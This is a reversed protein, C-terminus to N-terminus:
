GIHVGDKEATVTIPNVTEFTGGTYTHPLVVPTTVPAFPCGFGDKVLTYTIGGAGGVAAGVTADITIDGHEKAPEKPTMNTIGAHTLGTQAHVVVECTGATIVVSKGAPCVLDVHALYEDAKVITTLNFKYACGNMTVTAAVFGFAKCETYTPTATVNASAAGVSASYSGKCEVKGGATNFIENGVTSTASLQLPYVNTQSTIKAETKEAQAASAVVVSMALIAVLALGLAKFNRIM